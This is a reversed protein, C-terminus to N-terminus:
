YKVHLHVNHPKLQYLLLIAISFLVGFLYLLLYARVKPFLELLHDIDSNSDISRSSSNKKRPKPVPELFHLLTLNERTLCHPHTYKLAVKHCSKLIMQISTNRSNEM